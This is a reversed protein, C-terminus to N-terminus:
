KLFVPDDIELHEGGNKKGRILVLEAKKGYAICMQQPVLRSNVLISIFSPLKYPSAISVFTGKNKLLYFASKVFKKLLTIDGKRSIKRYKNPSDSSPHFPPNFVVMDFSEPSFKNKVEEVDINFFEVDLNENLVKGKLAREYFDREKEIGIVKLGYLKSLGFTVFGTGAGLECVKKVDSTPKSYWLLLVSAHTPKHGDIDVTKIERGLNKDFPPLKIM